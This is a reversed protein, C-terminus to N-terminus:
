DPEISFFSVSSSEQKEAYLAFKIAGNNPNVETIHFPLETDSPYNFGYFVKGNQDVIGTNGHFSGIYFRGDLMFLSRRATTGSPMRIRSERLTDGSSTQPVEKLDPDLILTFYYDGTKYEVALNGNRFYDSDTIEDCKVKYTHDLNGEADLFYLTDGSGVMVGKGQEWYRALLSSKLTPISNRRGGELDYVVIANECGVVWRASETRAIPFCRTHREEVEGSIEGDPGYFVLHSSKPDQSVFTMVFSRDDLIPLPVLWHNHVGERQIHKKIKGNPSLFLFHMRFKEGLNDYRVLAVDGNDLLKAEQYAGSGYEHLYVSKLKESKPDYIGLWSGKNQYEFFINGNPHVLMPVPHFTSVWGDGINNKKSTLKGDADFFRINLVPREQNPESQWYDVVALGGDPLAVSTAQTFNATPGKKVKWSSAFSTVVLIHLLVLTGIYRM